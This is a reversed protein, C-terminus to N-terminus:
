HKSFQPLTIHSQRNTTLYLSPDKIHDFDIIDMIYHKRTKVTKHVIIKRRPGYYFKKAEEISVRVRFLIIKSGHALCIIYIHISSIIIIHNRSFFLM